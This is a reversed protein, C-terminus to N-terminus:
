VQRHGQAQVQGQRDTHPLQAGEGDLIDEQEGVLGTDTLIYMSRLVSM